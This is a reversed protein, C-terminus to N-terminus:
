SATIGRGRLEFLRGVLLRLFRHGALVVTQFSDTEVIRDVRRHLVSPALFLLFLLSGLVLLGDGLCFCCTSRHGAIHATDDLRFPVGGAVGDGLATHRLVWSRLFLKHLSSLASSAHMPVHAPPLALDSEGDICKVSDFSVLHQLRSTFARDQLFGFEKQESLIHSFHRLYILPCKVFCQLEPMILLDFRHLVFSELLLFLM